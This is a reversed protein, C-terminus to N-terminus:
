HSCNGLSGQPLGPGTGRLIWALCLELLSLPFKPFLYPSYLDPPFEWEVKEEGCLLPSAAAAEWSPSGLPGGLPVRHLEPGLARGGAASARLASAGVPGAGCEGSGGLM